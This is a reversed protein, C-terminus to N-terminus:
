KNYIDAPLHIYGAFYLTADRFADELLTRIDSFKYIKTSSQIIGVNTTLVYVYIICIFLAKVFRNPKISLLSRMEDKYM